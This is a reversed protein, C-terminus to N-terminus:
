SNKLIEQLKEPTVKGIVQGNLVAAPALACAGLCYVVEMTFRYDPTTEGPKIGLENAMNNINATAGRVHCATGDCFKIVNKGRRTLYFQSYFTAVGYIQALPVHLKEAVATLVDKPLYGYEEQARQLVPILIGEGAGVEEIIRDIKSLDLQQEVSSM